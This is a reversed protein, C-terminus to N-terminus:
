KACASVAKGADDQKDKPPDPLKEGQNKVYKNVDDKNFYKIMADAICGAQTDTMSKFDSETKLKAVLAGKDVDGGGGCAASGFMLGAAALAAPLARRVTVIRV